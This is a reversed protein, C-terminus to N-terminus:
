KENKCNEVFIVLFYYYFHHNHVRNRLFHEFERYRYISSMLHCAQVATDMDTDLVMSVLREKFKNTFLELKGLNEPKNYLPLLAKICCIRM